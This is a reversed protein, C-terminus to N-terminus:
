GGLRGGLKGGVHAVHVRKEESLLRFHIRGAGPTFRVHTDFYRHTGDLDEFLCFERKRTQHEPTVKFGWAPGEPSADPDWAAVGRELETLRKCVAHVWLPNLRRLQDEAGPLFRLHPFGTAAFKLLEAGTRVAGLEGRRAAEAGERIWPLHEEVHERTAVHPITVETVESHFAGDDGDGDASEVLEEQVLTLRAGAWCAAVPLSVGMGAMLAAAGLGEVPVGEHRHEIEHRDRGDPFVSRYPSKSQMQLLRRWLDRNHSLGSWKGIPHGPAIQLGNVPERAVLVTRPRDVGAIALVARVLETMARNVADPGAESECSKENLFLQPM